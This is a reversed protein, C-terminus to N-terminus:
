ELAMSLSQLTGPEQNKEALQSVFMGLSLISSAKNIKFLRNSM